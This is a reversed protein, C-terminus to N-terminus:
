AVEEEEEQRRLKLRTALKGLIEDRNGLGKLDRAASGMASSQAIDAVAPLKGLLIECVHEDVTNEAILYRVIVPRTQGQRHFRQEWQEVARPTWPLMAIIALDTDQLDVGEGMSEGTAVLVCGKQETMYDGRIVDRESGSFGGHAQWVRHGKLKSSLSKHLAACDARRGTFVVVKSDGKVADVVQEIIERRKRSCALRLLAELRTEADPATKVEKAAGATPRSLQGRGVFMVERRKEPLQGHSVEYPVRHRVYDLRGRLEEIRSSGKDEIGGYQGPTGACYRRAWRWYGGWQQPEILDLQGWLDRVRDPIPTGTTALRREAARSLYEAAAVRNELCESQWKADGEGVTWRKRKRSKANHIEDMVLADIKLNQLFGATSREKPPAFVMGSLEEWGVIFLPRRGEERCRALYADPSDWGKRQRASPDSVWPVVTSVKQVERGWHPRIGAKTIVVVTGPGSLAWGIASATKGAGPAHWLHGSVRRVAWLIGERQFPRYWSDWIGERLESSRVAALAAEESVSPLGEISFRFAFGAGMLAHAVKHAIHVPARVNRHKWVKVGPVDYLAEKVEPSVTQGLSFICTTQLPCLDEAVPILLNM